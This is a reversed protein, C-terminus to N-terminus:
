RAIVRAIGWKTVNFLAERVIRPSMKSVGIEREVFLIPVEVINAGVSTARRTMEIQFAYGESSISNLNMKQLLEPRYIRFGATSDRVVFGLLLRSYLNAARSLLERHRPWNQVAGGKIWRSGILLQVQSNGKFFEIMSRLDAVRHSGDADMQIILQYNRKLVIGFGDRYASGLGLKSARTLLEVRDTKKVFEEVVQQSGDISSDDVILIDLPLELLQPLLRRLNEAENFTPIVVVMRPADVLADERM